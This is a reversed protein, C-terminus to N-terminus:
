LEQVVQILKQAPRSLPKYKKWALYVKTEIVPKFIIFRCNSFVNISDLAVTSGLGEQIMVGANYFLNYTGIIFLDEYVPGFWQKLENERLAQQTFILPENVLDKPKISEKSALPNSDLTVIGWRNTDKLQISNYKSRNCEGVHLVIDLLGKEFQDQIDISNGSHLHFRIRGYQKNITKFAKGILRMINTEGAGIHIDGELEEDYLDIDALM